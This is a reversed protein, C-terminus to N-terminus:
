CGLCFVPGGRAFGGVLRAGRMRLVGGWSSRTWPLTWALAEGKRAVIGEDEISYRWAGLEVAARGSDRIEPPECPQAPRARPDHLSLAVPPSRLSRLVLARESVLAFRDPGLDLTWIRRGDRVDFGAVEGGHSGDYSDQAVVTVKDVLGLARWGSLVARQEGTVPDLLRVSENESAGGVYPPWSHSIDHVSAVVAFANAHLAGLDEQTDDFTWLVRPMSELPAPLLEMRRAAQRVLPQEVGTLLAAYAEECRGVRLLIEAYRVRTAPESLDRELARLEDDSM